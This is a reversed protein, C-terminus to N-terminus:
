VSSTESLSEGRASGTARPSYALPRVSEMTEQTWALFAALLEVREVETMGIGTFGLPSVDFAKCVLEALEGFQSEARARRSAAMEASLFGEPIPRFSQGVEAALEMWDPRLENLKRHVAFPDRYITDGRYRFTFVARSPRFLRSLFGFMAAGMPLIVRSGM